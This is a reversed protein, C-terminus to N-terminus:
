YKRDPWDYKSNGPPIGWNHCRVMETVKVRITVPPNNSFQFPLCGLRTGSLTTIRDQDVGENAFESEVFSQGPKLIVAGGGDSTGRKTVFYGHDVVTQTTDNRISVTFPNDNAGCSSLLPAISALSGVAITAFGRRGM